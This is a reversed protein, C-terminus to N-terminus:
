YVPIGNLYDFNSGKESEDVLYLSLGRPDEQHYAKLGFEKVIENAKLELKLEKKEQESTLGVNCSLIDLRKIQRAIKQIDKFRWLFRKIDTIKKLEKM